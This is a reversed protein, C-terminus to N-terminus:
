EAAEYGLHSFNRYTLGSIDPRMAHDASNIAAPGDIGVGDDRLHLRSFILWARM